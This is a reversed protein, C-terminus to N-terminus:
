QGEVTFKEVLKGDPDKLEISIKRGDVETELFNNNSCVIVPYEFGSEGAEIWYNRHKHGSVMLDIGADSLVPGFDESLRAMGYWNNEDKMVPMHIVAIKMPANQFEDSAVEKQLWKLEKNRFNDFDVLGSYEVNGDPKDEGGDLVIFRVPGLTFAYYFEDEALVLYDKLQRAFKGRTEHNGRVYYFPKEKAFRNVCTDLFSAFIQDENEIHGLIDGNLFYCDQKEIDNSALYKGLKDAKDHIDCFVTFNIQDAEPDFTTFSYTESVVSDGYICKYAQYDKIELAIVKYQYEKGPLLDEVRVKHINEGVNILGDRSNRILEFSGDDKKIMVGPVVLKNTTFVITAEQTTVNQLYPGHTIALSESKQARANNLAIILVLLVLINKFKTM